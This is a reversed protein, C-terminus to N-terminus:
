LINLKKYEISLIINNCYNNCYVDAFCFTKKIKLYFFMMLNQKNVINLYEVKM